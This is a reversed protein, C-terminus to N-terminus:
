YLATFLPGRVIRAGVENSISTLAGDIDGADFVGSIKEDGLRGGIVVIRGARYRNFEAVVRDLPARDFVLQGKRWALAQEEGEKRVPYLKGMHDYRVKEGPSLIVRNSAGSPEGVTSVAVKHEMVTVAVEGSLREVEFRTGLARAQGNAAEVVFPRGQAESRPVAAVYAVGSLLEIRREHEDFNVAIASSPGLDVRSGDPLTVSDTQAIATRHDARLFTVPDGVWASSITVVLVISAALAALQPWRRRRLPITPIHPAAQPQSHVSHRSLSGPERALADMQGLASQAEKFAAANDPDAALWTDLERRTQTDLPGGGLRVVWEAARLGPDETHDNDGSVCGCQGKM